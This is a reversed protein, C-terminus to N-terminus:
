SVEKLDGLVMWDFAKLFFKLFIINSVNVENLQTAPIHSM